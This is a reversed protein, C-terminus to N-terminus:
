KVAQLQRGREYDGIWEPDPGVSPTPTSTTTTTLPAHASASARADAPTDAGAYAHAGARAAKVRNTAEAGRARAESVGALRSKYASLSAFRLRGPVSADLDHLNAALIAELARRVADVPQRILMALEAPDAPISDAPSIWQADSMLAKVGHAELPLWMEPEMM